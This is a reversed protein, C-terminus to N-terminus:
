QRPNALTDSFLAQPPWFNLKPGLNTLENLHPTCSGPRMRTPPSPAQAQRARGPFARSKRLCGINGKVCKRRHQAFCSTGRYCIDDSFSAMLVKHAYAGFGLLPTPEGGRGRHCVLHPSSNLCQFADLEGGRVASVCKTPCCNTSDAGSIWLDCRHDLTLPEPWQYLVL